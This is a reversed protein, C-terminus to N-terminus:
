RVEMLQPKSPEAAIRAESATEDPLPQRGSMRELSDAMRGIPTSFDPIQVLALLLGAIWFLHNHTFLALLCLVAVIEFQVRNTRHAMREPMSHLKLYLNGIMLVIALILVVMANFLLDTEGPATIFPPLHHPALPHLAESM